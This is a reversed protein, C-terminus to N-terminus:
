FKILWCSPLAIESIRRTRSRRWGIRKGVHTRPFFNKFFLTIRLVKNRMRMRKHIMHSYSKRFNYSKYITIINMKLTKILQIQFDLKYWYSPSVQTLFEFIKSLRCNNQIWGWQRWNKDKKAKKWDFNWSKIVLCFTFNPMFLMQLVNESEALHSLVFELM